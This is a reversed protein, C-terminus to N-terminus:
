PGSKAVASSSFGAPSHRATGVRSPRRTIRISVSTGDSGAENSASRLTTSASQVSATM